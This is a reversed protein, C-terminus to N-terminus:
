NHHQVNRHASLAAVTIIIGHFIISVAFSAGNSIIVLSIQKFSFSFSFHLGCKNSVICFDVSACQDLESEEYAYAYMCADVSVFICECVRM